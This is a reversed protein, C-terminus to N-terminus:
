SKDAFHTCRGRKIPVVDSPVRRVIRTRDDIYVGTCKMWAAGM